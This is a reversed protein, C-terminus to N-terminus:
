NVYMIIKKIIITKSLFYSVILNADPSQMQLNDKSEMTKITEEM